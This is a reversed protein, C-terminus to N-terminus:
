LRRERYGRRKYDGRKEKYWHKPYCHDAAGVAKVGLGISGSENEPHVRYTEGSEDNVRM